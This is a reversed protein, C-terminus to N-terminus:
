RDVSVNEECLKLPEYARVNVFYFCCGVVSINQKQKRWRTPLQWMGVHGSLVAINQKNYKESPTQWRRQLHTVKRHPTKGGKERQCQLRNIGQEQWGEEDFTNPAAQSFQSLPQQERTELLNKRGLFM